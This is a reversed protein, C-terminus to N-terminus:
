KRRNRIDETRTNIALKLWRLLRGLAVSFEDVSEETIGEINNSIFKFKEYEKYSDEKSGIPWYEGLRIFLDDNCCNVQRQNFTKWQLKNTDRECVFGRDKYRLM